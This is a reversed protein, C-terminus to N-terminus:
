LIQLCRKFFSVPWLVSRGRGFRVGEGRWTVRWGSAQVGSTFLMKLGGHLHEEGYDKFLSRPETSLSVHCM